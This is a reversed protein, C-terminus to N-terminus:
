YMRTNTLDVALEDQERFVTIAERDGAPLTLALNLICDPHQNSKLRM